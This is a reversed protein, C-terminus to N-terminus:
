GLVVEGAGAVEDLGAAVVAAVFFQFVGSEQLIGMLSVDAPDFCGYGAPDEDFVSRLPLQSLVSRFAAAIDPTMLIRGDVRPLANIADAM